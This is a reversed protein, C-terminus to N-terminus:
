HMPSIFRVDDCERGPFSRMRASERLFSDLKHMKVLSAKEFGGTGSVSEIEERIIQAYDPRAALTLLAHTFTQRSQKNHSYSESHLCRM